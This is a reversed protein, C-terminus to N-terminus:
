PQLGFFRITGDALGAILYKGDNSFLVQYVAGTRTELTKILAGTRLNYIEIAGGGSAAAL